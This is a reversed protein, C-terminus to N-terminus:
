RDWERDWEARIAREYELGDIGRDKWIGFEAEMAARRDSRDSRQQELYDAVAARIVAECTRRDEESMRDLAEVQDQPLEVTTRMAPIYRSCSMSAVTPVRAAETRECLRPPSDDAGVEVAVLFM